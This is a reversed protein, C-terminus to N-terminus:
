EYIQDAIAKKAMKKEYAIVHAWKTLADMQRLRHLNLIRRKTNELIVKTAVQTYRKWKQFCKYIQGATWLIIMHMVRQRKKRQSQYVIARVEKSLRDMDPDVENRLIDLTYLYREKRLEFKMQGWCAAAIFQRVQQRCMLAVQVKRNKHARIVRFKDLQNWCRILRATRRM